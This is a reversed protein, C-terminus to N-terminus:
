AVADARRALDLPPEAVIDGESDDRDVLAGIVRGDAAESLAV